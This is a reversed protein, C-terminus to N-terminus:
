GTLDRPGGLVSPRPAQLAEVIKKLEEHVRGEGLGAKEMRELSAKQVLYVDGVPTGIHPRPGLSRLANLMSTATASSRSSMMRPLASKDYVFQDRGYVVYSIRLNTGRKTPHQCRMLWRQLMATGPTDNLTLHLEVEIRRESPVTM